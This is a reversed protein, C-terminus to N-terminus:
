LLPKNKILSLAKLRTLSLHKLLGASAKVPLHWGPGLHKDAFIVMADWFHRVSAERKQVSSRGKFHTIHVDHLYYNLYGAKRIRWSIDIDEGYMFFATDFLGAKELAERRILMFAGTLIDAQCTENEPKNGLYYANFFASRPFIKGLGTFRFLSALPSPFGRKSEPLFRGNGDTMRAGAAGAEPHTKMFHLARVLADQDTITDPNLILIFEGASAEIGRNCAASFGENVGPIILRVEPFEDRVMLASGDSSDNDVVTIEHETGHLAVIVSQLANRLLTSVNYSVIVVSLEM